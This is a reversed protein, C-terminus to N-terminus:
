SVGFPSATAVELLRGGGRSRGVDANPQARMLLVPIPADRLVRASVSGLLARHVRGHGHSGMVILDHGGAAVVALIAAAPDGSRLLTTVGVDPPITATAHRLIRAHLPERQTPTPTSSVGEVTAPLPVAATILTLRANQDRALAVAHALGAEADASGNCAVLIRCYCSM